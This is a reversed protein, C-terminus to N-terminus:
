STKEETEPESKILAEWKKRFEGFTGSAIADRMGRFFDMYFYLNHMTNLRMSLIERTLFLHRLYARTYNRCTSCRCYPDLPGEDAKFETRKISIRGTSTFLTGNRANRT